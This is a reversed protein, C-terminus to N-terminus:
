SPLHQSLIVRLYQEIEDACKEYQDMGSGIPDSIDIGEPSLLKVISELEPFERVIWDRHQRTMTFVHDVQNLLRPTVPQSEHSQLDIGRQRLVQVAEPSPPSGMAAALGASAVMYGRDVLDEEACQLRDSLMKRFLGEAMPSRCTNGTCVFLFISGALRGVLRETVVGERVISWDDGSVRVITSPQGYRAPGDDIVLSVRDGAAAAFEEARTFFTGSKTVEGSFVLPSPTLRLIEQVIDHSTARLPLLGDGVLLSRTEPPVADLLSESRPADFQLTVPGPWCRRSLKRGLASMEPVYDWAEAASKVAMQCPELELATLLEKMRTMGAPALAHVAAVYVTETPLAVLRGEALQQVAEHIVDRPNDAHQLDVVQPM